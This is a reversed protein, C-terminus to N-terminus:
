HDGGLVADCSGALVRATARLTAADAPPASLDTLVTPVRWGEPARSPRGPTGADTGGPGDPPLATLGDFVCPVPAMECGGDGRVGGCPGHVMRKPCGPVRQLPLEVGGM